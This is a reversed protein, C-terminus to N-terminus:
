LLREWAGNDFGAIYDNTIDFGFFQSGESPTLVDGSLVGAAKVTLYGQRIAAVLELSIDASDTEYFVWVSITM